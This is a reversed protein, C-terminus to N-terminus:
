ILIYNKMNKLFINCINNEIKSINISILDNTYNIEM